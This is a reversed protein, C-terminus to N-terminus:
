SLKPSSFYKYCTISVTICVKMSNYLSNYVYIYLKFRTRSITLIICSNYRTKITNYLSNYVRFISFSIHFFYKYDNYWDLRRIQSFRKGVIQRAKTCQGAALVLMSATKKENLYKRKKNLYKNKNKLLFLFFDNKNTYGVNAHVNYKSPHILPKNKSIM